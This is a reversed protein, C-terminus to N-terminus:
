ALNVKRFIGGIACIAMGLLTLTSGADPVSRTMTFSFNGNADGGEGDTIWALYTFLYKGPEMVGRASGSRVGDGDGIGLIAFSEGGSSDYESYVDRWHDADLDYRELRTGLLAETGDGLSTLLHGGVAYSVPEFLLFSLAARKGVQRQDGAILLESGSWQAVEATNVFNWSSAALSIGGSDTTRWSVPLASPFSYDSELPGAWSETYGSGLSMGIARARELPYLAFALVPLLCILPSKM